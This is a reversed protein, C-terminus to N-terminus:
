ETIVLKACNQGTATKLHVFYVGPKVREGNRDRTNWSIRVEDMTSRGAYLQKVLKGAADYISCEVFSNRQTSFAIIASKRTPNPFLTM